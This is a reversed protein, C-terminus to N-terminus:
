DKNNGQYMNNDYEQLVTGLETSNIWSEEYVHMDVIVVKKGFAHICFDAWSCCVGYSEGIEEYYLEDGNKYLSMYGTRYRFYYENGEIDKFEYITPCSGCTREPESYLKIIMFSDDFIKNASEVEELTYM